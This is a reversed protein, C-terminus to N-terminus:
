KSSSPTPCKYSSINFSVGLHFLVYSDKQTSNGRQRGKVGISTGTEYSRDQLYYAPYDVETTEDSNTTMFADPGAYTTSVDDLYDTNTFRYGVEAFVNMNENISYKFGLTLPFCLAMTGYQKRGSDANQGETGLPRLFYKTGQLYAYPDYSFVGIGLSLYPTFRYGSVGPIFRFFNFYGSLAGEWVNTNFSLNRARQTANKSYIDSYALFAYDASLKLGIYNNFQKIYYVGGSFKPRNIAARTNLDGFYHGAGVAIGFEGESKYSNYLQSQGFGISCYLLAIFLLLKNLRM